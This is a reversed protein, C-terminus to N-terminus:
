SERALLAVAVAPAVDTVTDEAPGNLRLLEAFSRYSRAQEHAIERVLFAGVGAGILTVSQALNARAAVRDLASKIRSLQASRFSQALVRWDNSTASEVDRGIMRAIRRASAFATKEAGDASPHQDAHEPLEGLVRYVDAMTAFHEAVIPVVEGRFAVRDLVAMLPTRVLGSYVLEGSLLRSYDDRGRFRPQGDVIAIIDTTTSGIDVFVGAAIHSAVLDVSARWNASAIESAHLAVGDSAVFARDGRYFRVSGGALEERMFRAIEIVGTNRNPFLDVMEGTMTVAHHASQGVQSAALAMAQHLEGLGRWLACPVQIVACVAGAPDVRAVKLHAGGVDWGIIVDSM